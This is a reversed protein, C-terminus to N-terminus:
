KAYVQLKNATKKEKFISKLKTLFIKYLIHRQLSAYIIACDCEYHDFKQFLEPSSTHKQWCVSVCCEYM